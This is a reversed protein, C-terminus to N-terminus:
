APKSVQTDGPNDKETESTRREERFSELSDEFAGKLMYFSVSDLSDIDFGEPPNPVLTKMIGYFYANEIMNHYQAYIRFDPSSSDIKVDEDDGDGSSGSNENKVVCKELHFSRKSELELLKEMGGPIFGAAKDRIVQEEIITPKLFIELQRNDFEFKVIDRKM